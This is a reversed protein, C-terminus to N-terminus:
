SPSSAKGKKSGTDKKDQDDDDDEYEDDDDDEYEDDDDDDPQEIEPELQWDEPEELDEVATIPEEEASLAAAASMDLSDEGILHDFHSLSAGSAKEDSPAGPEDSSRASTDSPPEDEAGPQPPPSSDSVGQSALFAAVVRADFRKEDPNQLERVIDKTTRDCWPSDPNSHNDVYEALALIRATLPIAFGRLGLPGSGDMYEHHARIITAAEAWIGSREAIEAGRDVHSPDGGIPGDAANSCELLGIDHLLAATRLLSLKDDALELRNGLDECIAIVKGTHDPWNLYRDTLLQLTDRMETEFQGSTKRYQANNIFVGAQRALGEVIKLDVTDFDGAKRNRLDLVGILQEGQLLPVVLSSTTSTRVRDDWNRDSTSLKESLLASRSSAATGVLGQGLPVPHNRARELALGKTHTVILDGGQPQWFACRTAEVLDCAHEVLAARALEPDIHAAIDGTAIHLQDLRREGAGVAEITRITDRRVLVYGLVVTIATLLLVATISYVQWAQGKEMLPEFVYTSSIYFLVGLPILSVVVM